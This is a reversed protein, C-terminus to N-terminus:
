RREQVRVYEVAVTAAESCVFLKSAAPWEIVEVGQASSLANCQRGGVAGLELKAASVVDALARGARASLWGSLALGDLFM